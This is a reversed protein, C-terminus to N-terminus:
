AVKHTGDRETRAAGGGKTGDSGISTNARGCTQRCEDQAPQEEKKVPQVQETPEKTTEVNEKRRILRGSPSVVDPIAPVEPLVFDPINFGLTDSEEKADKSPQIGATPNKMGKQETAPKTEANTGMRGRGKHLAPHTMSSEALLTPKIRARKQRPAAAPKAKKQEEQEKTLAQPNESQLAIIKYILDQATLRTSRAIGLEKAINILEIHAKAELESKSYM